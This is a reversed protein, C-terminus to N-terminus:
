WSARRLTNCSRRLLNHVRRLTNCLLRHQNHVRRLTNCQLRCQSCARRLTDLRLPRCHDRRQRRPPVLDTHRHALLGMLREDPQLIQQRVLQGVAIRRDDHRPRELQEEFPRQRALGRHGVPWPFNRRGLLTVPVDRGRHPARDPLSVLTLAREDVALPPPARGGAQQLVVVDVVPRAPRLVIRVLDLQATARVILVLGDEVVAGREDRRLLRRRRRAGPLRTTAPRAPRSPMREAGGGTVRFM